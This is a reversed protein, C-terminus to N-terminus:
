EQLPMCVSIAGSLCAPDVIDDVYTAAVRKRNDMWQQMNHYIAASYSPVIPGSRNRVLRVDLRFSRM